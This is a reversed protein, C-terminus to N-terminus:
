SEFYLTPTDSILVDTTLGVYDYPDFFWQLRVKAAGSPIQANIYGISVEMTSNSPMTGTETKIAPSLTRINYAQGLPNNSSDYFCVGPLYNGVGGANFLNTIGFVSTAGSPIDIYDSVRVRRGWTANATFAGTNALFGKDASVAIDMNQSNLQGLGSDSFDMGPLVIVNLVKKM